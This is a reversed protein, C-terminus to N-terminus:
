KIAANYPTYRSWMLPTYTDGIIEGLLDKFIGEGNSSNTMIIISTKKDPFNINYHQWGDDHGGKSFGPGYKCNLVLWGLASALQIDNNDNTTDNTITPFMYKSNIRMQPTLMLATTKKNLGKGQMVYAIFRTYDAITTVMSGAANPVSKKGKFLVNGNEDHGVAYNSDFTPDWIFGTRKMGAPNFIKEVALQQINKGTIKEIVLQLLIVGEGSYAFRSGPTFYIALKGKADYAGTNPNLFWLNPFGTTHSLCMRATILKWREDGALDKYKDYDPLPKDLYKYLPKDMDVVGEQVLQMVLFSFVAKSLSAGYLVTATDLAEKTQNNKLGFARIYVPKNDNLVSICLGMVKGDRMLNTVISDAQPLSLHSGDLRTIQQAAAYFSYSILMVALLAAKPYMKFM